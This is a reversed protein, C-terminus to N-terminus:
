QLMKFDVNLYLSLLRTAISSLIAVKEEVFSWEQGSVPGPGCCRSLSWVSGDHNESTRERHKGHGQEAQHGDAMQTGDTLFQQMRQLLHVRLNELPPQSKHCAAEVVLWRQNGQFLPVADSHVEGVGSISGSGAVSLDVAETILALLQGVVDGHFAGGEVEIHGIAEM